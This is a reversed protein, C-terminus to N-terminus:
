SGSEEEAARALRLLFREPLEGDLDHRLKLAFARAFSGSICGTAGFPLTPRRQLYERLLRRDGDDLRHADRTARCPQDSNGFAYIPSFNNRLRCHTLSSATKKGVCDTNTSAVIIYRHTFDTELHNLRTRM